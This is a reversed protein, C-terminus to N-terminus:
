AAARKRRNWGFAVSALVALGASGLTSPEPVATIREPTGTAYLSDSEVGGNGTIGQSRVGFYHNPNSDKSTLFSLEDLGLLGTGVVALTFTQTQGQAVGPPAGVGGNIFNGGSSNKVGVDFSDPNSPLNIGNPDLLVYWGTGIPGSENGSTSGGVSSVTAPAAPLNFSFGSLFSSVSSTNTLTVTITANTASSALYDFTVQATDNSSTVGSLNFIVAGRSQGTATLVLLLTGLKVASFRFKQVSM